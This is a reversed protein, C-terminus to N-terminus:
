KEKYAISFRLTKIDFGRRELEKTLTTEGGGTNYKIHDFYHHLLRGDVGWKPHYYMIDKERKSWYIRLKNSPKLREQM